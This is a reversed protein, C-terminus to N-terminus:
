LGLYTTYQAKSAIIDLEIETNAGTMLLIFEIKQLQTLTDFHAIIADFDAAADIDMLFFTKISSASKGNHYSTIMGPLYGGSITKENDPNTTIRNFLDAM